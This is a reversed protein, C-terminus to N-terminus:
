INACDVKEYETHTGIFRIYITRKAFHIMTVLRYSNGKINFVYRDNGVADVSNFTTRMESFSHWDCKRVIDYWHNLPQVADPHRDAFQRLITKTIIVM